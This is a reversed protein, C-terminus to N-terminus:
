KARHIGDRRDREAKIDRYANKLKDKTIIGFSKPPIAPDYGELDPCHGAKFAQLIRDNQDIKKQCEAAVRCYDENTPKGIMDAEMMTSLWRSYQRPLTTKGPVLFKAFLAAGSKTTKGASAPAPACLREVILKATADGLWGVGAALLANKADKNGALNFLFIALQAGIDEAASIDGTEADAATNAPLRKIKKM